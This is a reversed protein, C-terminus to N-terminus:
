GQQSIGRNKRHVRAAYAAGWWLSEIRDFDQSLEGLLILAGSAFPLIRVAVMDLHTDMREIHREGPVFLVTVPGSPAPIVLHLARRRGLVCRALFTPALTSDRQRLGAEALMRAVLTPAVPERRTLAYAEHSFHEVSAAILRESASGWWQLMGALAISLSAALALAARFRTRALPIPEVALAVVTRSALDDPVKIALARHIRHELALAAVLLSPADPCVRAAAAETVEVSRPDILLRRKFEACDMSFPGATSPLDKLASTSIWHTGAPNSRERIRRANCAINHQEGLKGFRHLM